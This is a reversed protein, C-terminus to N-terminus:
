RSLPVLCGLLFLSEGVSLLWISHAVETSAIFPTAVTAPILVVHPGLLMPEGECLPIYSSGSSYCHFWHQAGLIATHRM